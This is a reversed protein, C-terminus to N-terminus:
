AINLTIAVGKDSKTSTVCAAHMHVHILATSTISYPFGGTMIGAIRCGVFPRYAYLYVSIAVSPDSFKM